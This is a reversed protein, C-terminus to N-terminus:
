GLGKFLDSIKQWFPAQGVLYGAFPVLLGVNRLTFRRRISADIPWTPTQELDKYREVLRAVQWQGTDRDEKGEAERQAQAAESLISLRDAEALLVEEKQKKMILHISLLPLLFVLVEFLIALALLWLYENLFPRYHEGFSNRGGLSIVLVWVAVFTAPLGAVSRNTSTSTASPSSGAPGM